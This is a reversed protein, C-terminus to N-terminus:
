LALAKKLVNNISIMARDVFPLEPISIITARNCRMQDMLENIPLILTQIGFRDVFMYKHTVLSFWSLKLRYPKGAEDQLQFWTGFKVKRLQGMIVQEEDSLSAPQQKKVPRKKVSIVTKQPSPPEAGAQESPLELHSSFLSFLSFLDPQHYEGLSAISEEIRSKLQPLNALLWKQDDDSDQAKTAHMVQDIIELVEIWEEGQEAEPDRLLMLIMRDLWAHFLFHEVVPHLKYGSSREEIIQYAKGRASELKERGRAAEQNREEVVRAHKELQEVLNSIFSYQEEFIKFDGTFSTLIHGVSEQMPYYIGRRLDEEDIWSVGADVLLNLLRRSIHHSDSLFRNDLIAAKLYPTHLHSILTKTINSLNEEDLVEKFLMGVLEITDLDASPIIKRDVLQFLRVREASLIKKAEDILSTELEIDRPPGADREEIPLLGTDASSQIDSIASILTTSDIQERSQESPLGKPTNIVKLEENRRGAMLTLISHLIEDGLSSTPMPSGPYASIGSEGQSGTDIPVSPESHLRQQNERIRVSPSKKLNLKLNPFIGAGILKKNFRDYIQGLKSILFRNFLHYLTLLLDNELRLRETTVQFANTIHAPCGPIDDKAPKVGGLTVALRQSLAYLQQYYDAHARSIINQVALHKELDENEVVELDNGCEGEIRPTPYSIHDGNLFADFGKALNERFNQEVERRQKK